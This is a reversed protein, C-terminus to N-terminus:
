IVGLQANIAKSLLKAVVLSGQASIGGWHIGDTWFYNTNTYGNLVGMPTSTDGIDLLGTINLGGAQVLPNFGLGGTTPALRWQEMTEGGGGAVLANYSAMDMYYVATWPPSTAAITNCFPQLLAYAQAPTDGLSDGEHEAGNFILIRNRANPDVLTADRTSYASIINTLTEGSISTNIWRCPRNLMNQTLAMVMGFYGSGGIISTSLEPLYAHDASMESDGDTVVLDNYCQPVTKFTQYMAKRVSLAQGTSMALSGWVMFAQITGWFIFPGGSPQISRGILGGVPTGLTKWNGNTVAREGWYATASGITPGSIFSFPEPNCDASTLYTAALNVRSQDSWSNTSPSKTFYSQFNSTDTGLEFMAFSQGGICNTLQSQQFLSFSSGWSVSPLNMFLTSGERLFVLYVESGVVRVYPANALTTQTADNAGGSQDYWTIVQGVTGALFSNLSALDTLGNIASIDQQTTDTRQVRFLKGNAWSALLPKTGYCATVGAVADGPLATPTGADIWVANGRDNTSCTFFQGTTLNLWLRNVTNGRSIDDAATPNRFASNIPSPAIFTKIVGGGGLM